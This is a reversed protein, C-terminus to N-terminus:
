FGDLPNGSGTSRWDMNWLTEGDYAGAHGDFYLVNTRWNHRVSLGSTEGYGHFSANSIENCGAPDRYKTAGLDKWRKFSNWADAPYTDEKPFVADLLVINDAPSKIYETIKFPKKVGPGSPYSLGKMTGDVPGSWLINGINGIWPNGYPGQYEKIMRDRDVLRTDRRTGKYSPCYIVRNDPLYDYWIFASWWQVCVEPRPGNGPAYYVVTYGDNETSYLSFAYGSQKMHNMCILKKCQEKANNMAPVIVSLLIGIIAIVVLLEILTFGKGLGRM